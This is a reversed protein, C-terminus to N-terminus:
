GKNKWYNMFCIFIRFKTEANVRKSTRRRQGSQIGKKIKYKEANPEEGEKAEKNEHFEHKEFLENSEKQIYDCCYHRFFPL